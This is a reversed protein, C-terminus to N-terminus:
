KLKQVAFFASVTEIQADTYGKAIQPMITGPRKGDRFDKMHRTLTEKSQGALVPMGAQSQGDTGHCIACSGALDRGANAFPTQAAAVLPLAAALGALVTLARKM